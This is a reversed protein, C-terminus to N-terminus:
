HFGFSCVYPFFNFFDKNAPSSTFVLSKSNYKQLGEIYTNRYFDRSQTSSNTLFIKKSLILLESRCRWNITPCFCLRRPCKFKGQIKGMPCFIQHRKRKTPCNKIVTIKLGTLKKELFSSSNWQQQRQLGAIDCLIISWKMFAIISPIVQNQVNERREWLINLLRAYKNLCITCFFKWVLNHHYFPAAIIALYITHYSM